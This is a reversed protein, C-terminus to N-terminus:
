RYFTDTLKINGCAFPQDPRELLVGSDILEVRAATMRAARSAADLEDAALGGAHGDGFAVHEGRAAEGAHAETALDEAIVVHFHPGDAAEGAASAFVGAM